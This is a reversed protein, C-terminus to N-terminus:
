VVFCMGWHIRTDWSGDESVGNVDEDGDVKAIKVKTGAEDEFAVDADVILLLGGPKLCLQLEMLTRDIDTLGSRVLRMHVFDYQDYFHVLGARPEDAGERSIM